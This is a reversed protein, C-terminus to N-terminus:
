LGYNFEKAKVLVKEKILGSALMQRLKKMLEADVKKGPAAILVGSVTKIEELVEMGIKIDGTSIEKEVITYKGATVTTEDESKYATGQNTIATKVHKALKFFTKDIDSINVRVTDKWPEVERLSKDKIVEQFAIHVDPRFERSRKIIERIADKHRKHSEPIIQVAEGSSIMTDVQENSLGYVYHHFRNAIAVVQAEIRIEDQKIGRPSGSGNFNEWIQSISYVAERLYEIESLFAVAKSFHEFYIQSKIDELDMPYSQKLEEPLTLMVINHLKAAIMVTSRTDSNLGLEESLKNCIRVVSRTHPTFFYKEKESILNSIANILQNHSSQASDRMEELYANRSQLLSFETEYQEIKKKFETIVVEYETTRSVLEENIEKIKSNESEVTNVQAKLETIENKYVDIDDSEAPISGKTKLLAKLEQKKNYHEFGILVSQFLQLNSAPKTLYMFAHARNIAQIIEKPETHGTLIIRTADPAFRISKELFEDGNMIPMFYDSLIVGPRYGRNLIQLAEPGNLATEVTYLRAFINGLLKLTHKEDEVILMKNHSEKPKIEQQVSM